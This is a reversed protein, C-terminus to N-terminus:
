AGAFSTGITRPSPQVTVARCAATVRLCRVGAAPRDTGGPAGALGVNGERFVPMGRGIGPQHHGHSDTAGLHRGRAM